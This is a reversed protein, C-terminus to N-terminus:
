IDSGLVNDREIASQAQTSAVLRLGLGGEATAERPKVGAVCAFRPETDSIDISTTATQATFQALRILPSRGGLASHPRNTNYDTLWPRM